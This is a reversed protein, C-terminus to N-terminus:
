EDDDDGVDAEFEEEEVQYGANDYEDLDYEKKLDYINEELENASQLSKLRQTIEDGIGGENIYLRQNYNEINKLSEDIVDRTVNDYFKNQHGRKELWMGVEAFSDFDAANKTNKPTFEAIKVLKDYSSLFKDVDKDGARIRSDIELSFKCLKRAQDTQLAGNVNQTVLLGKYLNELYTLDDEDYNAGWIKHLDSLKKEKLLPIEDEIVSAEKLKQYQHFYDSWGLSKYTDAAFVKSYVPWVGDPGNLEQLREWEKVIFPIGAYQCLRDVAEWDWNNEELYARACSNCIPIFGDPYFPSHTPAFDETTSTIGCRNCKKTLFAQKPIKPEIPMM